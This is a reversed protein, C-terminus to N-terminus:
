PRVGPKSCKYCTIQTSFTTPKSGSGGAFWMAVTTQNNPRNGYQKPPTLYPKGQHQPGNKKNKM